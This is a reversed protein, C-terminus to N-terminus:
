DKLRKVFFLNSLPISHKLRKIYKSIYHFDVAVVRCRKACISCVNGKACQEDLCMQVNEIDLIFM